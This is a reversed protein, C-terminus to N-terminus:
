PFSLGKVSYDSFKDGFFLQGVIEGTIDTFLHLPDIKQMNTANNKEWKDLMNNTIKVTWPVMENLFDFHFVSSLTKRHNKWENGNLFVVGKEMFKHFLYFMEAKKYDRINLMFQKIAELETLYIHPSDITNFGYGLIKPNKRM